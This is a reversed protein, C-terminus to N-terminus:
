KALFSRRRRPCGATSDGPLTWHVASSLLLMVCGNLELTEEFFESIEVSRLVLGKDFPWGALFFLGALATLIVPPASLITVLHRLVTRRHLAAQTFFALWLVLVLLRLTYQFTSWAKADGFRDIDLERLAFSLALLALGAHILFTVSITKIRFAHLSHLTCAFLLM